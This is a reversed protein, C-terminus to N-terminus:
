KRFKQRIAVPVINDPVWFFQHGCNYGGRNVKFNDVNTGPIMGVPLGTSKSLRVEEGDIRGKIIEPLENRHVWEKATLRECFERTTTLNSGVYRGWNFNLDQAITEHYQAHYQNIADTTIQKTYRVLSGDGNEDNLIHTRLQDQFKAYNGGTTINSKLIETIPGVISDVMGQGILDEITQNVALERIVPLTKKPKFEKSLSAFYENNLRSVDNFAAVFEGLVKQYQPGTLLKKLRSKIQGIAKLNDISNVLRGDKISLDKISKQIEAYLDKQIGPINGQFGDISTQITDLINQIIKDM